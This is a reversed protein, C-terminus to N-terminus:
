LGQPLALKTWNLLGSTTNASATNAPNLASIARDSSGNYIDSLGKLGIQQNQREIQQDQNEVGLAIDANKNIGQRAADDAAAQYGGANGTRAATLNGEGVAGAVSGGVSQDGATLLNAKQVASLGETGSAM